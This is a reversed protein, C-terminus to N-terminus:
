RSFDLSLSSGQYQGIGKAEFTFLFVFATQM